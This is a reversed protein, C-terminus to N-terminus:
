GSSPSGGTDRGGRARTSPASDTHDPQRSVSSPGHRRIWPCRTSAGTSIPRPAWRSADRSSRPCSTTTSRSAPPRTARSCPRAIYRRVCDALSRRVRRQSEGDSGRDRVLCLVEADTEALLTGLLHAGLSGTAGTLLVRGAQPVARPVAAPRIDFPLVGDARMLARAHDADRARARRGGGELVSVLADLTADDALDVRCPGTSNMKSCRRSSSRVCPTSGTCRWRNARTWRQRSSCHDAVFAAVCGPRVARHRGEATRELDQPHHKPAGSRDGPVPFDGAALPGTAAPVRDAVDRLGPVRQLDAAPCRRDVGHRARGPAVLGVGVVPREGGPPVRLRPQAAPRRPQDDRGM